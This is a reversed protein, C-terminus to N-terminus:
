TTFYTISARFDFNTGIESTDLNTMTTASTGLVRTIECYTNNAIALLGICSVASSMNQFYGFLGNAEISTNALTDGVTFPLGSLLVNGSMTGKSAIVM